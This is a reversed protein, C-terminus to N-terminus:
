GWGNSNMDVCVSSEHACLGNTENIEMNGGTGNKSWDAVTSLDFGDKFGEFNNSYITWQSYARLIEFLLLFLLMLFRFTM